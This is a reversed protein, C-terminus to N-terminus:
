RASPGQWRGPQFGVPLRVPRGGNIRIGVALVQNKACGRSDELLEQLEQLVPQFALTLISSYRESVPFYFLFEGFEGRRYQFGILLGDTGDASGEPGVLDPEPGFLSNGDAGLVMREQSAAM